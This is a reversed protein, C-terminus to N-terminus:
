KHIDNSALAARIHEILSGAAPSLHRSQRISVVLQQQQIQRDVVPVFVVGAEEAANIPALHKSVLALGIGASAMSRMMEYSTTSVVVNPQAIARGFVRDYQMRLDSNPAPMVLPYQACDVIRVKEMGALPHDERMMAYTIRELRTVHLLDPMRPPNFTMVVEVVDKLLLDLLVPSPAVTIDFTIGPLKSHFESLLTPVFDRSFTEPVGISVNGRRLGKLDSVKETARKMERIVARAHLLVAEGAATLRLRNRGRRREFLPAGLSDELQVIQRNVASAAINLVESARRFSGTEAVAIFYRLASANLLVTM